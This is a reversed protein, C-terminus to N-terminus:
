DGTSGINGPAFALEELCDRCLEGDSTPFLGIQRCDQDCHACHFLARYQANHSTIALLPDVTEAYVRYLQYDYPDFLRFVAQAWRDLRAEEEAITLEDITCGISDFQKRHFHRTKTARDADCLEAIYDRPSTNPVSAGQAMRRAYNQLQTM